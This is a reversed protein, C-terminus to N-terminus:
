AWCQPNAVSAVLIRDGRSLGLTSRATCYTRPFKKAPSRKAPRAPAWAAASAQHRSVAPIRMWPVM